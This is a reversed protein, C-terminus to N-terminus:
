SSFYVTLGYKKCMKECHRCPKSLVLDGTGGVRVVYMTAGKLVRKCFGVHRM